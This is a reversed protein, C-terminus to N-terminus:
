LLHIEVVDKDHLERNLKRFEQGPFKSSGWVKAFRFKNIFDRHLKSCFDGITTGKKMIIPEDLDAPKGVEKCYLRILNLKKFILDKLKKLNIKKHASICLDPKIKKKVKNLQSKSVSDIKNLVIIAPIYIKNKQIADMLDDPTIKERIVVQANHIRFEKLIDAVTQKTLLKQKITFGIDLGDKEKKKITIDPKIKNVRLHADYVEKQLIKLHEPHNVDILFIVLDANRMVSLVEKGRGTGAAAGQVIGPVDLIQIKADKHQLLGPVVSLTTFEYAGIKSKADTIANLLTSKGVSPFGVIIATANGTRKVAYKDHVSKKASRVAQKEKLKRIKAKVLGIHHQTKKNYKTTSIEVELAKIKDRITKTGLKKLIKKDM